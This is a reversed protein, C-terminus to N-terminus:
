LVINFQFFTLVCALFVLNFIVSRCFLDAHVIELQHDMGFYVDWELVEISHLFVGIYGMLEAPTQM